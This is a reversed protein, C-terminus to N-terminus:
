AFVTGFIFVVTFHQWGARYAYWGDLKGHWRGFSWWGARRLPCVDALEWAAGAGAFVIIAATNITVLRQDVCAFLPVRVSRIQPMQRDKFATHAIIKLISHQSFIFIITSQHSVFSIVHVLCPEFYM